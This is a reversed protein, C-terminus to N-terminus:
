TGGRKAPTQALLVNIGDVRTLDVRSIRSLKHRGM